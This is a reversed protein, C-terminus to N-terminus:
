QNRTQLRARNKDCLALRKMKPYKQLEEETACENLGAKRVGDMYRELMPQDNITGFDSLARELSFDPYRRRLEDVAAVTDAQKGLQAYSMALILYNWPLQDAVLRRVTAIAQDYRGVAYFPDVFYDYLPPYRPNLRLAREMMEIGDQPRGIITMNGGYRVLVDPDNPNLVLAKEFEAFARDPDSLDIYLEGLVQHAYADAPDLAIAKLALDRGKEILATPEPPAWGLWLVADYLDALGAYARAFQPDREIAKKYLEEARSIDEKNLHYHLQEAMVFYDYADFSTPPKRRVNAAEATFLTSTPGGLAAAIKQTVDSQVDFIDDLPRDYRESWVHTDTAAEILQATVRARGRDTQISGELVYRVGLERGVEAVDVAKGKYTLMTHPAIVFLQRFRSLDIILDDTIGDALREQRADGGISTFPLVAISPKNPLLLAANKAENTRLPISPQRQSLPLLTIAVFGSIAAAVSIRIM